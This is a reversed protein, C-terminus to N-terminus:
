SKRAVIEVRRNQQRGEATANSARPDSEGQPHVSVQGADINGHQALWAKVAEARQASLQQNHGEAGTSDTYGFVRVEGTNYRQNISAAIQQLNAEAGSKITAADKDFLVDENVGYIAYNENGRVSINNDRVEDYRAEPANWDIANWSGAAANAATSNYTASDSDTRAYDADDTKNNNRLLFIALAIVGLGLLLWPLFSGSRKKKPEVHIEAM